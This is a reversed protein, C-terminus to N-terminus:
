NGRYVMVTSKEERFKFGAKGFAKKSPCNEPVFRAVIEIGPWINNQVRKCGLEIAQTGFGKGTWHERLAISVECSHDRSAKNFRIYGMQEGPSTVVQEIIFLRCSTDIITNDFWIAHDERSVPKPNMFKKYIFPDNRLDFLFNMDEKNGRVHRLKIM